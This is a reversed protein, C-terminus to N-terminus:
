ETVIIATDPCPSAHRKEIMVALDHHDGLEVPYYFVPEGDWRMAWEGVEHLLWIQRRRWSRVAPLYLVGTGTEGQSEHIWPTEYVSPDVLKIRLRFRAACGCWQGMTMPFRGGAAMEIVSCVKRDIQQYYAERL